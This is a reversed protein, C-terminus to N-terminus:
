GLAEARKQNESLGLTVKSWDLAFTCVKDTMTWNLNYKTIVVVNGNSIM